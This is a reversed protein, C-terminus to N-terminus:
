YVITTMCPNVTVNEQRHVETLNRGGSIERLRRGSRLPVTIPKLTGDENVKLFYM